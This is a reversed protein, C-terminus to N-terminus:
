AAAKPTPEAAPAAEYLRGEPGCRPVVEVTPPTYGAPWPTRMDVCQQGPHGTVLNRAVVPHGCAHAKAQHGIPALMHHVCDVCKPAAVSPHPTHSM